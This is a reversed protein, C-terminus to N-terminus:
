FSDTVHGMAMVAVIAMVGALLGGAGAKALMSRCSQYAAMPKKSYAAVTQARGAWKEMDEPKMDSRPSAFCLRPVPSMPAAKAATGCGRLAPQTALRRGRPTSLLDLALVCRGLCAPLARQPAALVASEATPQPADDVADEGDRGRLGRAGDDQEDLGDGQPGHEQSICIWVCIHICMSIDGLAGLPASRALRPAARHAYRGPCTDLWRAHKMMNMGAQMMDPTMSGMMDLGKSMDMNAMDMGGMGGMGAM